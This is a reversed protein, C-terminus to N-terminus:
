QPPPLRGWAIFPGNRYAQASKGYTLDAGQPTLVRGGAAKLVAHGAATDWEMTPGFRPYVDAIGEAILCFKLSSGAAQRRAIPLRALFDVVGQDPHSRSVLATLGEPPPARTAIPRRYLAQDLNAGPAIVMVEAREAALWLRQQAPAYVVGAVPCNDVVVGINVTFENTLELFERTGDLPDVALFTASAPPLQGAAAQEEALVPMGPVVKALQSLIFAESALDADTVPSTDDKQRVKARGYADM